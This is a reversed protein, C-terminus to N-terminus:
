ASRGSGAPDIAENAIAEVILRDAPARSQWHLGDGRFDHDVSGGLASRVMAGVVTSGFGRHQPPAVPPGGSEHWAIAFTEADITWRVDVVGADNSLAGYKVANTALEHMAMGLAQAARPNVRLDPGALRIRTDLIDDLHALHARILPDIPVNTWKSEILLDQAAALAQIRQDFRVQFEQQTPAITHRAVAGVVSLLNRARHDVERLLLGIRQEYAQRETLDYFYCVLGFSGDPLMIRHLRWDYSQVVGIDARTETSSARYPDGTALTHRFRDIVETAFDANWIRHHLAEFDRGVLPQFDAFVRMAGDSATIFRLDSDLLYVGFPNTEILRRYTQNNGRLQEEAQKLRTIDHVTGLFAEVNGDAGFLPRYSLQWYRQEGTVIDFGEHEVDIIEEGALLRPQMARLVACTEPPLVDEIRRGVHDAAPLRNTRAMRDNIRVFRFDADFLVIGIPVADYIAEIESMPVSRAAPLGTAEVPCFGPTM